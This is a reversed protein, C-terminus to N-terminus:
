QDLPIFISLECPRVPHGNDFNVVFQEGAESLKFTIYKDRNEIYLENDSGLLYCYNTKCQEKIALAIPCGCPSKKVGNDIHEQKVSITVRQYAPKSM